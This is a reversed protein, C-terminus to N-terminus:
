ISDLYKFTFNSLDSKENDLQLPKGSSKIHGTSTLKEINPYGLKQEAPSWFLFNTKKLNELSDTNANQKTVAASSKCGTNYIIAFFFVFCLFHFASSYKKCPIM